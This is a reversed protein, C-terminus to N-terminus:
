GARRLGGGRRGYRVAGAAGPPAPGARINAAPAGRAAGGDHSRRAAFRARDAVGGSAALDRQAARDQARRAGSADAADGRARGGRRVPRAGGRALAVRRKRRPSALSARLADLERRPHSRRGRRAPRRHRRGSGARARHTRRDAGRRGPRRPAFPRVGGRPHPGGGQPRHTRAEVAIGDSRDMICAGCRVSLWVKVSRLRRAAQSRRPSASGGRSSLGVANPRWPQRLM